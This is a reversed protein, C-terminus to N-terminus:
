MDKSKTCTTSESQDRNLWRLKKDNGRCQMKKWFTKYSPMEKSSKVYDKQILQFRKRRETAKQGGTKFDREEQRNSSM